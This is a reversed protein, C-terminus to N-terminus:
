LDPEPLSGGSGQRDDSTGCGSWEYLDFVYEQALEEFPRGTKKEAFRAVYDFGEGSYGFQTGPQWQFQLMHLVSLFGIDAGLNALIEFMLFENCFM